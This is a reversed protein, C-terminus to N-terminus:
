INWWYSVKLLWINNAGRSFLRDLDRSLDVDNASGDTEDRARTWVLYAASGPRYEWRLVMTSNLSSYNEDFEGTEEVPTYDIGGDYRRFSQYDLSSILGEASIQWSLNRHFMIGARLELELEDQGLDAFIAADDDDDEDTDRNEVWHTQEFKRVVNVGASFELNSRPRFGIGTWHAWWTGNREGGVGSDLILSFMRREDTNMSLSFGWAEPYEWLGLGRTERDDYDKVSQSFIGYVWWRNKLEISANWNWGKQINNGDYNWAGYFNLNNWTNRVIWWDEQTRYQVWLRGHQWDPRDLYGLRNLELHPDRITFGVEGLIHRGGLKQFEADLGFGTNENDNRSFVSQGQAIWSGDESSLRWDIGGTTAPHRADQGALTLTGGVRSSSFVDQTVRLVSYNAVPEIIAERTVRVTDVVPEGDVWTTDTGVSDAAYKATEEQTVANMFALSTGGALKGTVKAAGLITTVQPHDISYAYNDDDIGGPGRGVRRSYFLDFRTNFLNAGELFFPRKESYYTEFTTLNLVPRDLEVQGFDPNVTADLILNSSLAYKLDFGVNGSTERGDPNGDTKPDVTTSSVTYPLFELHRSPKIGTLGTLHGMRSAYGGESSPSFAWRSYEGNRSISRTVQMGWVHEDKEPFRLCSYPIRMEASWGWPQMQAAAEWVGDWDYDVGTDDYIRADRLVGAATVSFYRGTLHDHYCDLSVLILDSESGRDRRVLQRNIKEPESDYNWFAFYIADDDYVVAVVTSETAAEGEDPERQRFGRGRDLQPDQWISEDLRGDVVPVDANVRSARLEPVTREVQETEV